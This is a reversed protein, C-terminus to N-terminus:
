KRILKKVAIGENTHIHLLYTGSTLAEVNLQIQSANDFSQMTILKSKIDYVQVQNVYMNESNTINVINTAPNPYLNFKQALQHDTSLAIVEPPVNELATLKINDYKNNTALSRSKDETSTQFVISTVKYDDDDALNASTTLHLFNSVVVLGLYPVEYYAKKNTYDLYVNLKIWTNFPFKTPTQPDNNLNIGSSEWGIKSSYSYRIFGDKTDFNLSILLNGGTHLPNNDSTLYIMNDSAFTIHHQPGTYYDLEFKIVNNGSKRKDILTNLKPKRICFVGRVNTPISLTIVKGKNPYATVTSVNAGPKGFEDYSEAIWGGQGPTVGTVDSSLNGLTFFDFNEDYLVQGQTNNFFSLAALAFFTTKKM